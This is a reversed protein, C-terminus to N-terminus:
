RSSILMMGDPVVHCTRQATPQWTSGGAYRVSDVNLYSVATFGTLELEVSATSKPNVKLKLDFSKQMAASDSSAMEAPTIQGKANLGYATVRVGVIESYSTNSLTLHLNQSPGSNRQSDAPIQQLYGSPDKQARFDVPCSTGGAIASLVAPQSVKRGSTQALCTMSGLVVAISCLGALKM